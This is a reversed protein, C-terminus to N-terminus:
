FPRCRWDLNAVSERWATQWVDNTTASKGWGEAICPILVPRVSREGALLAKWLDRASRRPSVGRRRPAKRLKM